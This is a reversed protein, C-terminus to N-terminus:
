AFFDDIDETSKLIDNKEVGLESAISVSAQLRSKIDIAYADRILIDFEDQQNKLALKYDKLKTELEEDLKGQNQLYLSLIEQEQKYLKYRGYEVAFMVANQVFETTDENLHVTIYMSLMKVMGELLLWLCEETYDTEKIKNEQFQATLARVQEAIMKISECKEGSVGRRELIMVSADLYNAYAFFVAISYREDNQIVAYEVASAAIENWDTSTFEKIPKGKSLKCLIALTMVSGVRLKKTIDSSKDSENAILAEQAKEFTNMAVQISAGLDTDKLYDCTIDNIFSDTM